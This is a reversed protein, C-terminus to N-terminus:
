DLNYLEIKEILYNQAFIIDNIDQTLKKLYSLRFEYDTTSKWTQGILRGNELQESYDM